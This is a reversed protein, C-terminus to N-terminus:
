FKGAQLLGMIGVGIAEDFCWVYNGIM